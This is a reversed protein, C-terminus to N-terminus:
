GDLVKSLEAKLRDAPWSSPVIGHGAADLMGPVADIIQEIAGRLSQQSTEVTVKRGSIRVVTGAGDTLVLAGTAAAAAPLNARADMGALFPQSRDGAVFGVVCVQGPEPPAYVGRGDPGLWLPPLPVADLLEGTARDHRDVVELTAAYGGARQAVFSSRVVARVPLSVGALATRRIVDRLSRRM